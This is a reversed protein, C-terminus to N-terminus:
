WIQTKDALYAAEITNGPEFNSALYHFSQERDDAHSSPFLLQECYIAIDTVIREYRYYALAIPDVRAPGYGQYFLAEEEQATRGIFGQAGGIFMLDREKPALIPNDWDVIYFAGRADVLINAAHVDSHCLVFDPPQAMLVQACREAREVLDLTEKRRDTMFLATNKAVPDDFHADPIQELLTKVTHRWQPSFTERQIRGALAPPLSLTHIRKLAAGFEAWQSESLVVEYGDRGEIFPYLIIRYDDLHGWLRGTKSPLPAIVQRIGQDSFYKPLEVSTEDFIGSRLKVFYPDGGRAVARYVVTNLDAGLPLFDLMDIYLGYESQLCAIIKEDPLDPKTLM